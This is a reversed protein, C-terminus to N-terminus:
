RLHVTSNTIMRAPGKNPHGSRCMDVDVVQVNNMHMLRAVESMRIQDRCMRMMFRMSEEADPMTCGDQETVAAPLILVTDLDNEALM